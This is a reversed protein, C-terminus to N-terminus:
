KFIKTYPHNHSKNLLYLDSVEFVVTEKEIKVEVFPYNHCNIIKGKFGWWHMVSKDYPMILVKDGINM